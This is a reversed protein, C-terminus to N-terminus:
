PPTAVHTNVIKFLLDRLLCIEFIDPTLDTYVFSTLELANLRLAFVFPSPFTWYLDDSLFTTVTFLLPLIVIFPIPIAFTVIDTFSVCFYLATEM